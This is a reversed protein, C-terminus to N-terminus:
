SKLYPQLPHFFAIKVHEVAKNVLQEQVKDLNNGASPMIEVRVDTFQQFKTNSLHRHLITSGNRTVLILYQYVGIRFIAAM